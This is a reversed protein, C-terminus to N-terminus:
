NESHQNGISDLGAARRTLLWSTEPEVPPAEVARGDDTLVGARLSSFAVLIDSEHVTALQPSGATQVNSGAAVARQQVGCKTPQSLVLVFGLQARKRGDGQELGERRGNAWHFRLFLVIKRALNSSIMWVLKWGAFAFIFFTPRRGATM